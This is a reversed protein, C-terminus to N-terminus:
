VSVDCALMSLVVEASAWVNAGPMTKWAAAGGTSEMTVIAGLSVVESVGDVSNVGVVIVSVDVEWATGVRVAAWLVMRGAMARQTGLPVKQGTELVVDVAAAGLM